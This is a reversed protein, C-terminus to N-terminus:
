IHILSLGLAGTKADMILRAFSPPEDIYGWNVLYINRVAFTTKGTNPTTLEFAHLPTGQVKVTTFFRILTLLSLRGINDNYKVNDFYPTVYGYGLAPIDGIDVGEAEAVEKLEKGREVKPKTVLPEVDTAFYVNGKRVVVVHLLENQLDDVYSEDVIDVPLLISASPYRLVYYTANRYQKIYVSSPKGVLEASGKSASKALAFPNNANVWMRRVRNTDTGRLAVYIEPPVEGDNVVKVMYDKLSAM